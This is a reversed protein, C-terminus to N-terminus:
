LTGHVMNRHNYSPTQKRRFCDWFDLDMKYSPDLDNSQKPLTFSSNYYFKMPSISNNTIMGLPSFGTKYGFLYLQLDNTRGNRQEKQKLISVPNHCGGFCM